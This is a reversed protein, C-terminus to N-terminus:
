KRHATGTKIADREANGTTGDPPLTGPQGKHGAIAVHWPMATLGALATTRAVFTRQKM